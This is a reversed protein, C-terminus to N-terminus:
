LALLLSSYLLAGAIFPLIRSQREAPLEEKLVNLVTAGAVLAFLVQVAAEELAIAKGLLWGGLIALALVWRGTRRYRIQHHSSLAHDNVILHLTYAITFTILGRVDQEMRHVSLYGILLNYVAFMAIHLRFVRHAARGEDGAAEQEPGQEIGHRNGHQWESNEAHAISAHAEREDRKTHVRVLRELVYFIILGTMAVLWVHHELWAISEIESFTEQAEQLEPFIHVFVYAVSIGGALSLWISRPTVDLFRLYGALLHVSAMFSASLLPLLESDNM